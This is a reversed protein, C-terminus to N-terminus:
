AFRLFLSLVTVVLLIILIINTIRIDNFSSDTPNETTIETASESFDSLYVVVPESVYGASGDMMNICIVCDNAIVLDYVYTTGDVSKPEVLEVNKDSWDLHSITSDSVEYTYLLNCYHLFDNNVCNATVTIKYENNDTITYKIDTIELNDDNRLAYTSASVSFLCLNSMILVMVVFMFFM